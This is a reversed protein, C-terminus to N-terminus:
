VDQTVQSRMFLPTALAAASLEDHSDGRHSLRGSLFAPLVRVCVVPFLSPWSPGLSCPHCAFIQCNPTNPRSPAQLLPSSHTSGAPTSKHNGTQQLPFGVCVGCYHTPSISDPRPLFHHCAGPTAETGTPTLPLLSFLCLGDVLCLAKMIRM